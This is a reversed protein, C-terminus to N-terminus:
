ASCSAQTDLRNCIHVQQALGNKENASLLADDMKLRPDGLTNHGTCWLRFPIQKKYKRVHFLLPLMAFFTMYLLNVQFM